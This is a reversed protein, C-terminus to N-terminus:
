RKWVAILSIVPANVGIYGPNEPENEVPEVNVMPGNIKGAISQIIPNVRKNM